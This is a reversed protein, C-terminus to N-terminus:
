QLWLEVQKQLASEQCQCYQNQRLQKEKNKGYFSNIVCHEWQFTRRAKGYTDREESVLAM